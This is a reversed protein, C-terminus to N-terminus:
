LKPPQWVPPTYSPPISFTNHNLKFSESLYFVFELETKIIKHEEHHHHHHAIVYFETKPSDSRSDQFCPIYSIIIGDLGIYLLAVLFIIHYTKRIYGM